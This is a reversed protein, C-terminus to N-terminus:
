PWTAYATTSRHKGDISVWVFAMLQGSSPQNGAWAGYGGVINETSKSSQGGSRIWDFKGGYWSGDSQQKFACAIAQAGNEDPWSDNMDYTFYITSGSIKASSLTMDVSTANKFSEGGWQASDYNFSGSPSEGTTQTTTTTSDGTTTTSSAAATDTAQDAEDDTLNDVAECGLAVCLAILPIWTFRGAPREAMDDYKREFFQRKM